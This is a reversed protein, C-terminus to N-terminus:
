FEDPEEGLHVFALEQVMINSMKTLQVPTSVKGILGRDALYECTTIVGEVNFNRKFHAEIETASRAEGVEKLHELLPEFLTEHALRYNSEADDPPVCREDGFYVHVKPWEILGKFEDTALLEYLTKPTSGGSLAISFKNNREIAEGAARVIRMAAERAVAQPDPVVKIEPKTM